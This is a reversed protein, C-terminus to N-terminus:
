RSDSPDTHRYQREPLTPGRDADRLSCGRSVLPRNPPRGTRRPDARAVHLPDHRDGCRHRRSRRRDAERTRFRHDQGTRGRDGALQEAQHRSPRSRQCPCPGVGDAIQSALESAEVATVGRAMRDGLTGGRYFAMAIFLRGQKTVGAEHVIGINPHDLAASVRAELLFRERARKPLGLESPLFKLAVTRRLITDKARYVVGMGGAGIKEELRYHFPALPRNTESHPASWVVPLALRYGKGRVTEIYRPHKASDGLVRRLQGVARTVVDGRVSAEHWVDHRLQAPSLVEGSHRALDLLVGMSKPAVQVSHEGDSLRNLHPLARWEGISFPRSLTATTSETGMNQEGGFVPRCTQTITDREPHGSASAAHVALTSPPSRSRAFRRNPCTKFLIPTFPGGLDM